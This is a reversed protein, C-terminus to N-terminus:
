DPSSARYIRESRSPSRSTMSRPAPPTSPRRSTPLSRPRDLLRACARVAGHRPLARLRGPAERRSQAESGAGEQLDDSGEQSHAVGMKAEASDYFFAHDGWINYVLKPLNSTGIGPPKWSHVCARDRVVELVMTKMQCLRECMRSLSASRAGAMTSTLTPGRPSKRARQTSPREPTCSSSSKTSSTRSRRPTRSSPSKSRPATTRTGMRGSGTSGVKVRKNACEFIQAVM